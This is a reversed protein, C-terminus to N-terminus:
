EAAPRVIRMQALLARLAAPRLPKHLVEVDLATAGDRVAQTRDATALIGPINAGFRQRMDRILTLGNGTDLHYDAIIIDPTGNASAIAAAEDIDAATVVKCGWGELLLRMGNLIAPENDVCM